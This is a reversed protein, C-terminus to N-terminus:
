AWQVTTPPAKIPSAATSNIISVPRTAPMLPMIPPRNENGDDSVVGITGQLM